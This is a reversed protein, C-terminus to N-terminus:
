RSQDGHRTGTNEDRNMNVNIKPIRFTAATDVKRTKLDVRVVFSSEPLQPMQFTAMSKQMQAPSLRFQARYM